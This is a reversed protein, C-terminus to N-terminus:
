KFLDVAAALAPDSGETFLDWRVPLPRDPIIGRGEWVALPLGPPQFLEHALWVRSGDRFGYAWETEVNGLSTQGMVKARGTVQLLGSLVEGYSVTDRSVLVLLPVSQSGGVNEPDVRLERSEDRAVFRGLDGHTFLSLLGDLVTSLGGGNERNDIVLGALPSNVTMARLAARVQDPITEDDLGPLYIYGIHQSPILCSDIPLAGTVRRRTLTVVFQPQGPREITLAMSSGEPGRIADRVGGSSDLVPQGDIAVISDHLRLGSEAGPGGPFVVEIVARGAEPIALVSIGVGVFDNNGAFGADAAKAEEPSEFSSHNDGLATILDSMAEYFGNDDLGATVLQKYQTQLAPLQSKVVGTYVYDQQITSILQNFVQLHRTNTVADVPTNTPLPPPPEPTPTGETLLSAPMQAAVSVGPVFDCTRAASAVATGPQGKAPTAPATASVGPTESDGPTQTAAAIAATAARTAAAATATVSTASAVSASTASVAPTESVGPTQTPRALTPALPTRATGPFLTSCALSAALLAFLWLPRRM